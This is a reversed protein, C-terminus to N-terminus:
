RDDELEVPGDDATELLFLAELDMAMLRIDTLQAQLGSCRLGAVVAEPEGDVEVNVRGGNARARRVGPMTCAQRVVECAQAEDSVRIDLVADGAEALLSRVSGRKAVRGGELIVVTDAVEEVERPYHTTMLIGCDLTSRLKTLLEMVRARSAIDLGVTPEDLIFFDVPRVFTMALHLRRQGGGSLRGAATRLEDGLELAAAIDIAAQTADSKSMGSLQAESVLNAEVTLEPYVATEQSALSLPGPRSVVGEDPRRIGALIEILTTKGAGNRGILCTVSGAAVGLSVDQLAQVAGYSRSLGRGQLEAAM